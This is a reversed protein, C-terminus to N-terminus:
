GVYRAIIVGGADYVISFDKRTRLEAIVRDWQGPTVRGYAQAYTRQGNDIVLYGPQKYKGQLGPFLNFLRGNGESLPPDPYVYDLSTPYSAFKPYAETVKFPYGFGTVSLTFSGDPANREFWQSAAVDAPEVYYDVEQGLGAASSLVALLATAAVIVGRVWARGREWLAVVVVGVILGYWPLGYLYVRYLAEGGYSQVLLVLAPGFALVAPVMLAQRRRFLWWAVLVAALLPLGIILLASAAGTQDMGPLVPKILTTPPALGAGPDSQVLTVRQSNLFPLALITWGLTLLGWVVLLWVHRMRILCFLAGMVALMAYPTLQHTVVLCVWVLTAALLGARSSLARTRDQGDLLPAQETRRLLRAPWRRLVFASDASRAPVLRLYFGLFVLALIMALAQPSFYNAGTWSGLIYVLPAVALVRRDATLARLAFAIALVTVFCFVPEAWLALTLTSIQSVASLGAALAFFGPWNHYIDISRDVTQNVLLYEVVGIHKYSWPYRPAEYVASTTGLLVLVLLAQYAVVIWRPTAADLAAALHPITGLLLALWWWVPLTPLLGWGTIRAPDVSPLALLWCLLGVALCGVHLWFTRPHRALRSAPPSATEPTPEVLEVSSM